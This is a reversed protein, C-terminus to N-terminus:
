SRSASPPSHVDHKPHFLNLAHGAEHTLTRLFAAPVEDLPRGRASAEIFTETGLTVDAFGVAGERPVVDQDFMIGFLTGQSSGALLWLRWEDATGAGRRTALLTQLETNTLSADEPVNLEDITAQVDWGATAYVQRFATTM